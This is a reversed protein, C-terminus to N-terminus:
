GAPSAARAIRFAWIALAGPVLFGLWSALMPVSVGGVELSLGLIVRLLHAVAVLSFLAGSLLCYSKHAM